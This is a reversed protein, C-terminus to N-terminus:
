KTIITDTKQYLFTKNFTTLITCQIFDISTGALLENNVFPDYNGLTNQIIYTLYTLYSVTLPYPLLALTKKATINNGTSSTYWILCLIIVLKVQNAM